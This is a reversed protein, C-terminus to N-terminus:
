SAPAATLEFVARLSPAELIAALPLSRGTERELATLLWLLHVSDWGPVDDFAADADAATLPLGLEDQLLTILDDVSNM